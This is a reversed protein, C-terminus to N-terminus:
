EDTFTKGINEIEVTYGFADRVPLKPISLFFLYKLSEVDLRNRSKQCIMELTSYAREIWGTNVPISLMVQLMRCLHRFSIQNSLLYNRWLKFQNVEPTKDKQRDHAQQLKRSLKNIEPWAELKM